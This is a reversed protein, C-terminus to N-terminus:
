RVTAPITERTRGRLVVPEGLAWHAREALAADGEFKNVAGGHDRVEDVVIGFFANLLAVVEAPPREAALATSGALDLTGAM